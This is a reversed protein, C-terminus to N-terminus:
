VGRFFHGKTFGRAKVKEALENYKSVAGTGSSAIDRHMVILGKIEEYSEDSINLRVTAIGGKKLKGLIDPVFIVNSNLITSRCDIRDCLVPFEMGLRDKLRYVGKSCAEKCKTGTKFDGAISGVPCYESNMVTIRGYAVVETELTDFGELNTIQSLTLEPSLTIGSLGLSRLTEASFSNFVNLSYDGVVKLEPFKSTYDISGLNGVLVGDIGAEVFEGLRSEILRDYNGRTIPPLWIFVECGNKRCKEVVEKIDKGVLEGFPLYLRDLGLSGYDIEESWTYFFASLNLEKTERRGNGLFYLMKKEEDAKEKSIKRVRQNARKSEMRELVERRINNLESIPLALDEDLIIDIEKFEFPTAGTKKLQEMIREETLPRNLAKEPVTSGTVTVENGDNDWVTFVVPELSKIEIKGRLIARRFFKGGFTERAAANLRKDSTKYVKNGKSIRGSVSGVAAIQGANVLSENKGNVKIESVVNGPSEGEGNWIEIGDGISLEDQLKIQVMRSAKDYSVVEGLYIGWNKPKEYCMMDRGQKGKLYGASFGGRNFIQSLEKIDKKDACVEGSAGKNNEGLAMDLYKRYIRVVTAVYEPSKMRGEIKFSKVGASVLERLENISCLDKPSMIYGKDSKTREGALEYQLRCPQACKGRNGSRGGIISSMLCQGSYSICLAGHIFVEIEMPTGKAIHGIEKISLERALVVRGFGLRELQKVGELNYTTMQTSAHISIDPLFKHLMSALGLDQVIIGDVGMLYAEEAFDVAHRMEEDSVLTNMALYINTGRIHAYDLAEKIQESDFNGAFQRANFLKGGLYVANAGNEVAAVFAEWDGAPALLEIKDKTM